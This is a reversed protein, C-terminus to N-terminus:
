WAVELACENTARPGLISVKQAIWISSSCVSKAIHLASYQQQIVSGECFVIAYGYNGLELHKRMIGIPKM